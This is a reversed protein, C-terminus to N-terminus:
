SKHAISEITERVDISARESGASVSVKMNSLILDCNEDTAIRKWGKAGLIIGTRDHMALPNPFTRDTTSLSVSELETTIRKYADGDDLDLIAGEVLERIGNLKQVVDSAARYHRVLTTARNKPEHSTAIGYFGANEYLERGITESTLMALNWFLPLLEGHADAFSEDLSFAVNVESTAVEGKDPLPYFEGSVLQNDQPVVLEFSDADQWPHTDLASLKKNLAEFDPEEDGVIGFVQQKDVAIQLIAMTRSEDDLPIQLKPLEDTLQKAQSTYLNIQVYIIGRVVRTNIDYDLYPFLQKDYFFNDVAMCFLHM